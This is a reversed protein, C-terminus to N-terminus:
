IKHGNNEFFTKKEVVVQADIRVFNEIKKQNVILVASVACDAFV